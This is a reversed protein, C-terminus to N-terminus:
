GRTFMCFAISFPWKYHTKGHFLDISQNQQSFRLRFSHNKGDFIPNEQLNERLGIWHFSPKSLEFSIDNVFDNSGVRVDQDEQQSAGFLCTRHGFVYLKKIHVAYMYMYLVRTDVIDITRWILGSLIGVDIPLQKGMGSENPSVTTRIHELAIERPKPAMLERM